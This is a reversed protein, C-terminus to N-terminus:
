PSKGEVCDGTKKEKRKERKECKKDDRVDYTCSCSKSDAPLFYM